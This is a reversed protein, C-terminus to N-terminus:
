WEPWVPITLGLGLIFIGWSLLILVLAALLTEFPRLGRAAVAGVGILLLISIVLGLREISLGFIVLSATVFVLPRLASLARADQAERLGQVLVVAGLGFLIWCLLRPVYGTGMRLATGIPYDRSLWLGFVAVGIFLLGALVDRRALMPWFGHLSSTQERELSLRREENADDHKRPRM